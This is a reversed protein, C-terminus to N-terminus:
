KSQKEMVRVHDSGSIIASFPLTICISWFDPMMRQRWNFDLKM